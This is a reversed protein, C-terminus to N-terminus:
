GVDASRAVKKEVTSLPPLSRPSLRLFDIVQLNNATSTTAGCKLSGVLAM